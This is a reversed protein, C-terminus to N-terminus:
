MRWSWQDQTSCVRRLTLKAALRTALARRMLQQESQNIKKGSPPESLGRSWPGRPSSNARQAERGGVARGSDPRHTRGGQPHAQWQTSSQCIERERNEKRQRLLSASSCHHLLNAM